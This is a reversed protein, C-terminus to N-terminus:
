IAKLDVVRITVPKIKLIKEETLKEEYVDGWMDRVKKGTSVSYQVTISGEPITFTGEKQPQLILEQLNVMKYVRGDITEESFAQRPYTINTTYFGDIRPMDTRVIQHIDKTTYLRYTLTLTDTPSVRTKSPIVQIFAAIESLIEKAEAEGVKKVEIKFSDSKYKKGDIIVEAKPLDYKGEKEARVIYSSTTSYSSIREGKEFRTYLSNSVAPGYIIEFGNMNKINVHEKVEKNSEIIYYIKFQEGEQVTEPAKIVIKTQGTAFVSVFLIVTLLFFHRRYLKLCLKINM